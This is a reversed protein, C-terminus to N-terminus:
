RARGTGKGKGKGKAGGGKAKPKAIPAEEDDEEDEVVKKRGGSAKAGGRKAKPRPLRGDPTRLGLAVDEEDEPGVRGGRRKNYVYALGALGAAAVGGAAYTSASPGGSGIQINSITFSKACDPKNTGGHDGTMKDCTWPWGSHWPPDNWEDKCHWAGVEAGTCPQDLWAMEKAEKGAWYSVVLTMGADLHTRLMQNAQEASSVSGKGPKNLYKIPSPISARRGGEQELM